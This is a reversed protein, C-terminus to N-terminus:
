QNKRETARLRSAVERLLPPVIQRIKPDLKDLQEGASDYDDALHEMAEALTPNDLEPFLWAYPEPM